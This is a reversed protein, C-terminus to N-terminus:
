GPVGRKFSDLCDLEKESLSSETHLTLLVMLARLVVLTREAKPPPGGGDSVFFHFGWNVTGRPGVQALGSSTFIRRDNLQGGSSMSRLVSPSGPRSGIFRELM